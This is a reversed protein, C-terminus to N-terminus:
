GEWMKRNDNFYSKLGTEARERIDLIADFFTITREDQYNNHAMERLWERVLGVYYSEQEDLMEKRDAILQHLCKDYKGDDVYPCQSCSGHNCIDIGKIVKVLKDTDM